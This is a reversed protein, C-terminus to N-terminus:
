RSSQRARPRGSTARTADPDIEATAMSIRYRATSELAASGRSGPMLTKPVIATLAGSRVQSQRRGAEPFYLRFTTGRGPTSDARIYGGARRVSGAAVALGLGTGLRGPKTTVFPEFVSALRDGDIGTGTDSVVVVAYRGSPLAASGRSGPVVRESRVEIRLEGGNPMADRANAALNLLVMEFEGPDILINPVAPHVATTVRVFGGILRRLMGELEIVLEGPDVVRPEPAEKRVFTLIQRALAAGRQAAGLVESLGRSADPTLRETGIVHETEGVVITLVNAFGHSITSALRGLTELKHRHALELRLHSLEDEFARRERADILVLVSGRLRGRRDRLTRARYEVPVATGDRAILLASGSVDHADALRAPVVAHLTIANSSREDILRVFESAPANALDADGVRTLARAAGNMFTLRGRRDITVVGETVADLAGETV